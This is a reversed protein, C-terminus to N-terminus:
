LSSIQQFDDETINSADVGTLGAMTNGNVSIVTGGEAQTITLDEFTVGNPQVPFESTPLVLSDVGDEFDTIIDPGSVNRLLFRDSGGGGTLTDEGLDGSLFNDGNGGNIVDRQQGGFITDNDNNGNLIDEDQGGFIRDDNNNGNIVDVGSGGLLIDNGEGGFVFNNGTDQTLGNILDNINQSDGFLFNRFVPFSFGAVQGLLNVAQSFGGDQLDSVLNNLSLDDPLPTSTRDLFDSIFQRPTEILNNIFDLSNSFFNDPISIGLFNQEIHIPDGDLSVTATDDEAQLQIIDSQSLPNGRVLEAFIAGEDGPAEKPTLQSDLYHGYEELFVEGVPEINKALLEQSLYITNTEAAFAGQSGNIQSAPLIEIEPLTALNGSTWTEQLSTVYARDGFAVQMKNTFDPTAAFEQLWKQTQQWIPILHSTEMIEDSRFRNSPFSRADIVMNSGLLETKL